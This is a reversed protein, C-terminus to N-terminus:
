RRARRQDLVVAVLPPVVAATFLGYALGVARFAKVALIAAAILLLFGGYARIWPGEWRQWPLLARGSVLSVLGVVAMLTLLLALVLSM